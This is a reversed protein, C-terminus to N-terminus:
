LVCYIGDSTKVFNLRVEETGRSRSLIRRIKRALTKQDGDSAEVFVPARYLTNEEHREVWLREIPPALYFTRTADLVPSQRVFDVVHVYIELQDTDAPFFESLHKVTM